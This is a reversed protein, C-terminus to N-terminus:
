ASTSSAFASSMAAPAAAPSLSESTPEVLDVWALKQASPSVKEESAGTESADLLEPLESKGCGDADVLKAEERAGCYKGKAEAALSGAFHSEGKLVLQNRYEPSLQSGFTATLGVGIVLLIMGLWRM